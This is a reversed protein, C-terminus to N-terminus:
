RTAPANLFANGLATRQRDEMGDPLYLHNYTNWPYWAYREVQPHNELMAIADNFFTVLVQESTNSSGMCGFETIWVPLGWKSAWNVAGQLSAATCSGENWGYWHMAIFDVRLDNAEVQAMFEELWARGDDSVAPSGVRISPDSTLEPWQAIADAVSMNAQDSKNPENFGLVTDYGAAAIGALRSAVNGGGWIMPIFLPDGCDSASPQETWNYCWSAGLEEIEGAPSNAIGKYAAPTVTPEGPACEIEIALSKVTSNCPDSFTTNSSPVVCSTRGVCLAEITSVSSESHCSGMEFDGCQGTPTGYSGFVVREIRQGAPCALNASAAEDATACVTTTSGEMGGAGTTIGGSGGGLSGGGGQEGGSGFSVFGGSGTAGGGAGDTGGSTPDNSEVGGTSSIGGSGEGHNSDSPAAADSSCSSNLLFAGASLLTLKRRTM